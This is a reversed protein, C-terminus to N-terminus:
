ANGPLSAASTPDVPSPRDGDFERARRYRLFAATLAALGAGVVFPTGANGLAVLAGGAVAGAAAAGGVALNHLGTLRGLLERRALRMRTTAVTVSWHVAALGILAQLVFALALSSTVGLALLCGALMALALPLLTSPALRAGVWAVVFGGAVAGGATAAALAGVAASAGLRQGAYIVLVSETLGVSLNVAASAGTLRRLGAHRSLAAVGARLDGVWRWAGPAAISLTTMPQLRFACAAATGTLAAEILAPAFPLWTFVAAGLLPGGLQGTEFLVQLRGNARTLGEAGVLRPVATTAATDAFTEATGVVLATVLLLPVSARGVSGAAFLVGLGITRLSLAAALVRRLDSRDVVTGGILGGLLWPLRSAAFTAAIEVPEDTLVTAMLPFGVARVGDGLNGLGAVTLLTKWGGDGARL